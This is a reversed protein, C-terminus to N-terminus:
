FGWVEKATDGLLRDRERETLWELGRIFALEDAMSPWGHKVRHYSPYGTGFMCRAIGWENVLRKIVAQIAPHPFEDLSQRATDSIKVFVNPNKALDFIPQHSAFDPGDTVDPYSMHDLLLPIGPYAKAIEDFDAAHEVRMHVQIVANLEDLVDWMTRNRAASLIQENEYFMPHFRFGRMGRESMWYRALEANNEAFPDVLGHSVFRGPHKVAADAVYGNDWTSFSTQVLVTKDVGHENMDELLQEATAPEDPLATFSAATPGVPAIPEMEWIHVHTDVIM